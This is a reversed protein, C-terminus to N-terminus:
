EAIMALTRLREIKGSGTRAFERMGIVRRPREHEYLMGKLSEVVETFPEQRDHGTEMVLVVSQGLREDPLAAFFHPFPIVGATMAELREPFIKRGGSLIVNDYRGLWRFSTDDLLEVIDNTRHEKMGLHPTHAILCGRDDLSFTVQGIATFQESRDDGNLKRLAVHTVMETSGYGHYVPTGLDQLDAIMAKSVPGGGLLITDFQAEVRSRDHQLATHLQVPVMATFRFRDRTGLNKLVGGQTNIPHLDFGLVMARVVMMKGGIFECPLAMLVRDGRRLRFTTSTLQASAVLDSPAITVPKPSGTTGSTRANLTGDGSLLDKLTVRVDSAWAAGRQQAVLADAWRLIADGELTTGDITIKQFPSLM